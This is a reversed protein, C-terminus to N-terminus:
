RHGEYGGNLADSQALCGFYSETAVTPASPFLSIQESQADAIAQQIANTLENPSLPASAMLFDALTERAVFPDASLGPGSHLQAELEIAAAALHQAIAASTQAHQACWPVYLEHAACARTLDIASLTLERALPILNMTTHGKKPNIEKRSRADALLRM